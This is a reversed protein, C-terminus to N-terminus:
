EIPQLILHQVFARPRDWARVIHNVDLQSAAKDISSLKKLVIVIENATAASALAPLIRQCAHFDARFPFDERGGVQGEALLALGCPSDPRIRRHDEVELRNRYSRRVRFKAAAPQPMRELVGIDRIVRGVFDRSSSWALFLNMISTLFRTLAKPEFSATLSMEKATSRPSTNPKRPGFPAPLDVVIRIIVPKMGGVLPVTFTPPKSTTSCGM